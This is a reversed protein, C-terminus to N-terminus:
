CAGLDKRGLLAKERKGEGKERRGGVDDTTDHFCCCCYYYYYYFYLKSVRM